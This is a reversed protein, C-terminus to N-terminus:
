VNYTVSLYNQFQCRSGGKHDGLGKQFVEKVVSEVYFNIGKEVNETKRMSRSEGREQVGRSEQLTRKGDGKPREM